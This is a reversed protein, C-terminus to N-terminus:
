HAHETTETYWLSSLPNFAFLPTIVVGGVPRGRCTGEVILHLHKQDPHHIPTLYLLAMMWRCLKQIYEKGSEVFSYISHKDSGRM